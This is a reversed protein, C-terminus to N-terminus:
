SKAPTIYTAYVVTNQTYEGTMHNFPGGCTIVRLQSDDTNGYVAETPFHDQDYQEVKTVGFTAVSGDERTVSIKQGPQLEKLRFFVAPGKYNDVHGVLVAPGIEGPTPSYEYWGAVDYDEPTQMTGDENKGLQILDTDVAIDPISLRTPLSQKMGTPKQPEPAKVEAVAAVRSITPQMNGLQTLSFVMVVCGVLLLGYSIAVNRRLPAEIRRAMRWQEYYRRSTGFRPKTLTLVLQGRAQKIHILKNASRVADRRLLRLYAKFTRTTRRM